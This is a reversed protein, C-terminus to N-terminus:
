KRDAMGDNVFTGNTSELDVLVFSDGRDQVIAHRSSVGQDPLVLVSDVDRGVSVNGQVSVRVGVREGSMVILAPRFKARVARRLENQIGNQEDLKLTEAM